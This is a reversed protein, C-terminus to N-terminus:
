FSHGRHVFFLLYGLSYVCGSQWSYISVDHYIVVSISSHILVICIRWRLWKGGREFCGSERWWDCGDCFAASSSKNWSPHPRLGSWCDKRMPARGPAAEPCFWMAKLRAKKPCLQTKKEHVTPPDMLIKVFFSMNRTWTAEQCYTWGRKPSNTSKPGGAIVYLVYFFQSHQSQMEPTWEKTTLNKEASIRDTIECGTFAYCLPGAPRRWLSVVLETISKELWQRHMDISPLVAHWLQAPTPLGPGMSSPQSWKAVQKPCQQSHTNKRDGVCPQCWVWRKPLGRSDFFFMCLAFMSM